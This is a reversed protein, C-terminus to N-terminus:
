KQRKEVSVVRVIQIFKTLHLIKSVDVLIPKEFVHM